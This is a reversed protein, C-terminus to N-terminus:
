TSNKQQTVYAYNLFLMVQLKSYEEYVTDIDGADSDIESLKRECYRLWKQVDDKHQGHFSIM